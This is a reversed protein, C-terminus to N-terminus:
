EQEFRLSIALATQRRRELLTTKGFLAV